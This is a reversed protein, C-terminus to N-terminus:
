WVLAKLPEKKSHFRESKKGSRLVLQKMVKDLRGKFGQEEKGYDRDKPMNPIDDESWRKLNDSVSDKKKSSDKSDSSITGYEDKIKEDREAEKILKKRGALYTPMLGAGPTYPNILRIM